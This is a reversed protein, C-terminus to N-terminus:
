SASENPLFRVGTAQQDSETTIMPRVGVKGRGNERTQLGTRNLVDEFVPLRYKQLKFNEVGSLSKQPFNSFKLKDAVKM